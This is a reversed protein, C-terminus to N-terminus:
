PSVEDATPIVPDAPEICDQDFLADAEHCLKTLTDEIHLRAAEQEDKDADRSIEIPQGWLFVGRSFPLSVVFRDWSGLVKRRSSNIAIPIVPIGSLRAIAVVGDTARMRPGRPGDPTIGIYGGSKLTSLLSRLAQTGGRSSSGAITSLGFHGVTRSIIQGDRHQSILMHIQRNRPWACPFMLFRGHWMCLIFPKGSDWFAAPVDGNIVQWRSTLYVLRIYLSGLWCMM